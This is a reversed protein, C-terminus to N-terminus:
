KIKGMIESTFRDANAAMAAAMKAGDLEDFATESVFLLDEGKVGDASISYSIQLRALKRETDFEFELIKASLAPSGPRESFAAKLRSLLLNEPLASWKNFEDKVIENDGVRYVFPHRYMKPNEIREVALAVGGPSSMGLDFTRVKRYPETSMLCSSFLAAALLAFATM